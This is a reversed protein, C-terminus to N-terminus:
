LFSPMLVMNFVLMFNNCIEDKVETDNNRITTLALTTNFIKSIIEKTLNVAIM